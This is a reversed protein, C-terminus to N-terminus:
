LNENKEKLEIKIESLCDMTNKRLFLCENRLREIEDKTNQAVLLAAGFFALSTIGFIMIAIEM